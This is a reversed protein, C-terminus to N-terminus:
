LYLTKNLDNKSEDCHAGDGHSDNLLKVTEEFQEETSSANGAFKSELNFNKIVIFM